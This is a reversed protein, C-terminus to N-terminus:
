AWVSDNGSESLILRWIRSTVQAIVAPNDPLILDVVGVNPDDTGYVNGGTAPHWNKLEVVNPNKLEETLSRIRKRELSM